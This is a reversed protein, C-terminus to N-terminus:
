YVNGERKPPKFKHVGVSIAKTHQLSEYKRSIFVEADSYKFQVFTHANVNQPKKSNEDKPFFGRDRLM